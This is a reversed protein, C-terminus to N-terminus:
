YLFLPVSTLLLLYQGKIIWLQTICRYKVGCVLPGCVQGMIYQHDCGLDCRLM